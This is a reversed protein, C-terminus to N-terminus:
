SATPPCCRALYDQLDALRAAIRDRDARYRVVKGERTSTLLGGARLLALQESATSQGIGARAAAEGVTLEGGDAFLMLLQQRTESALAKLFARTQEGFDLPAAATTTTTSATSTMESNRSKVIGHRAM